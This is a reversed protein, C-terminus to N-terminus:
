RPNCLIGSLPLAPPGFVVTGPVHTEKVAMGPTQVSDWGDFAWPQM